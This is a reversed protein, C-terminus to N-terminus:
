RSRRSGLGHSSWALEDTPVQDVYVRRHTGARISDVRSVAGCDAVAMKKVSLIIVGDPAVTGCRENLHALMQQGVIRRGDRLVRGVAREKLAPVLLDGRWDPYLPGDYVALGAPAISPTWELVADQYGDLRRFGDLAIDSSLGDAAIILLHEGIETVLTGGDPLFM